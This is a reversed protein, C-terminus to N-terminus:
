VSSDGASGPDAPEMKKAAVRSTAASVEVGYIQDMEWQHRWIKKEIELLKGSASQGHGEYQSYLIKREM